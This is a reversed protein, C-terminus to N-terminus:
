PWTPSATSTRRARSSSSSRADVKNYDAPGVIVGIDSIGLAEAALKKFM